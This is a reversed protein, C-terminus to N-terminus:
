CPQLQPTQINLLNTKRERVGREGLGGEGGRGPGRGLGGSRGRRRREERGGEALSGFIESKEEGAVVKM